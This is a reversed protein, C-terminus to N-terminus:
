QQGLEDVGPEATVSESVSSGASSDDYFLTTEECAIKTKPSQCAVEARFVHQGGSGAKMSVRFISESGAALSM